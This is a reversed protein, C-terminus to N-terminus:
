WSKFYEKERLCESMSQDFIEKQLFINREQPILTSEEEYTKWFMTLIKAGHIMSLRECISYLNYSLYCYPILIIDPHGYLIQCFFASGSYGCIIGHIIMKPITGTEKETNIWIRGTSTKFYKVNKFPYEIINETKCYKEIHM